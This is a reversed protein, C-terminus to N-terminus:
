DTSNMMFQCSVKQVAEDLEQQMALKEEAKESEVNSMKM